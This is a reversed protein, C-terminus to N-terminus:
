GLEKTCEEYRINEMKTNLLLGIDMLTAHIAAVLDSSATKQNSQREIAREFVLNAIEKEDM